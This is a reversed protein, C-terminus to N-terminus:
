KGCCDGEKYSRYTPDMAVLEEFSDIEVIDGALMPRIGLKFDEPHCFLAVDDWYIQRNQAEEFQFELFKRLKKGDEESWRSISYLQWGREGGTRSCATVIDDEVTMVWEDTHSDTWVANYGSRVFDPAVIAPNFIVQDGDLIIVDSLYARAVYLSSINNCTDYYPNEILTVGEYEQELVQFQEKLYGVVVYIESIGNQHLANIVTDIMRVGNVRIMPKTTTETVPRIRSGTGAAM